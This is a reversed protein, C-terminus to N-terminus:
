RAINRTKIDAAMKRFENLTERYFSKIGECLFSLQQFNEQGYKRHKLCDGHCFEVFGCQRCERNYKMKNQGFKRYKGTNLFYRWGNRTVNGLKLKEEVFFDCPFVDGNYEVVFYQCCNNDLVCTHPKGLVMKNIIADFNRISVHTRDRKEWEYYIKLLFDGWQKGTISFPLKNGKEDFEVCPIFQFFNTVNLSKLYNYVEFPKDVNAESVLVLFNFDVKNNVLHRLGKLVRNHSGSGSANVRYKNHINEPGDLSVGVLFRYEALFAAFEDNILTTNTQLSNSVHKGSRGYIKQFEIADKFFNLGMMTPEGGQWNFSYVPMEMAMYSSILQKLVPTSMRHKKEDPYMQLHDLYFCYTCRLNCDASAPKILLSFPREM